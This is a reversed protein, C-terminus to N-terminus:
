LLEATTSKDKNCDRTYLIYLGINIDICGTTGNISFPKNGPGEEKKKFFPALKNPQVAELPQRTQQQHRHNYLPLHLINCIIPQSSYLLLPPHCFISTWISTQSVWSNTSIHSIDSRDKLAHRHTGQAHTYDCLSLFIFAKPTSYINSRIPPPWFIDAAPRMVIVKTVTM